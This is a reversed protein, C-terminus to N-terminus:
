AKVGQGGTGNWEGVRFAVRKTHLLHRATINDSFIGGGWTGTGIMLSPELGSLHGIAGVSTGCNVLVRFSRARAAFAGIVTEDAAHVGCTHGQGHFYLLQNARGLGEQWGDVEYWALLTSLIEASLPEQPGVATIPAVLVRTGTPVRFGALDALREASQGIAAINPAGSPLQVVGRLAEKQYESVFYCGAREMASRLARAIPRDVVVAQEAACPTGNDFTKSNVIRGAVLDPDAISRDVYTPVNGPGVAIAPKGASYAAKVMPGGGSALILAVHPHRMLENTGAMTIKTMIQVLGDPAGAAVAARNMLRAALLGSQPARPHPAFIVANRAKLSILSKALVAATPSTVPVLAALVGMPEAVELVGRQEDRRMVGVTVMGELSRHLHESAFRNKFIKDAYVGFGTEEVALRALPEAAAAGVRAMAAVVQDVQEQSFEAYEAQAARAREALDRAQQVSEADLQVAGSAVESM